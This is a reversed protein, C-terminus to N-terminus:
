ITDAFHARYYKCLWFIGLVIFYGIGLYIFFTLYETIWYVWEQVNIPIGISPDVFASIMSYLIAALQAAGFIATVTVIFSYAGGKSIIKDCLTISYDQCSMKRKRIQVSAVLIVAYILTNVLADVGLIFVATAYNRAGSTIYSLMASFLGVTHSFLGLIVTAIARKAGFHAVAAALIGIGAYATLVSILDRVSTLVPTLSEYAINGTINLVVTQLIFNNIFPFAIFILVSLWFLSSHTLRESDNLATPKNKTQSM